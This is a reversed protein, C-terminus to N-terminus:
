NHPNAPDFEDAGMDCFTEKPRTEGDLDTGTCSTQGPVNHVSTPSANTLHFNLSAGSISVFKLDNAASGGAVYSAAAFGCNGTTQSGTSFDAGADRDNASVINSDGQVTGTCGVGASLPALATAHNYVVTNHAFTRLGSPPAAIKAGGFDNTDSGNRAIVNNVINFNANTLAIGGGGNSTLTSNTVTVTGGSSTIGGGANSTLTSNTVTVTGGSSTIGAGASNTITCRLLTLNATSSLNLRVATGTATSGSANFVKLGVLAVNVSNTGSVEVIPGNSTRTISATADGIIRVTRPIVLAPETAVAPTAEVVPGMVKIAPTLKGLAVTITPCPAGATCPGSANGGTQVYAIDEPRACAGTDTLCIGTGACESDQTCAHCAHDAGCVPANAPDGAMQCDASVVCEVCTKTGNIDCVNATGTCETSATCAKSADIRADSAADVVAPTDNGCAAFLTCTTISSLVLALNRM